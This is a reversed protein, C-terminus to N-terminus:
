QSLRRVSAAVVICEGSTFGDVVALATPKGSEVHLLSRISRVSVTPLEIAMSRTEDTAVEGSTKGKAPGSMKGMTVQRLVGDIQIPIASETEHGAGALISVRLGSEERRTESAYGMAGTAVVPAIGSVYTHLSVQAVETPTRRPVILRHRHVPAAPTVPDGIGPSQKTPVSYWLLEVEYRERYLSRVQELMISLTDHEAEEGEIGYVGPFLKTADLSLNGLLRGMLKDVSDPTPKSRERLAPPESSRAYGSLAPTEVRAPPPLQGFLDRLDYLKWSTSPSANAVTTMVTCAALSLLMISTRRSTM